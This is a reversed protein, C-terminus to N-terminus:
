GHGQRVCTLDDVIIRYFICHLEQIFVYDYIVIMLVVEHVFFM